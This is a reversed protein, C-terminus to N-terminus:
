GGGEWTICDKPCCSIAERIEEEPYQSLEVAEIMGTEENIKFVTPCLEVCSECDSCESSDIVPAQGMVEGSCVPYILVEIGGSAPNPVKSM